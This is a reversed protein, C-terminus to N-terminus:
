LRNLFANFTYLKGPQKKNKVNNMCIEDHLLNCRWEAHFFISFKNKQVLFATHLFHIEHWLTMTCLIYLSLGAFHMGSGPCWVIDM